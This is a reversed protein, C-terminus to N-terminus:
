VAMLAAVVLLGVLSGITVAAAHAALWDAARQLGALAQGAEGSLDVDGIPGDHRWGSTGGGGGRFARGCHDLFALLGLALWREMRIPFLQRRTYAFAEAAADFPSIPRSATTTAM